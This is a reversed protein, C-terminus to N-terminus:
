RKENWSLAYSVIFEVGDADRAVGLLYNDGIDPAGVAPLDAFGLLVGDRSFVRYRTWEPKAAALDPGTVFVRRARDVLIGSVPPVTPPVVVQAILRETQQPNGHAGARTAEARRAARWREIMVDTTRVTDQSWRIIVRAGDDDVCRVEPADNGTICFREGAAGLTTFRRKANPPIVPEIRGRGVDVFMSEIAGFDGLPRVSAQTTDTWFLATKPRFLQGTPRPPDGQTPRDLQTVTILSGNRFLTSIGERGRAAEIRRQLSDQATMRTDIYGAATSFRLLQNRVGNVAILTDGGAPFLGILEEFEGPGQGRRGHSAIFGGRQDFVRIEMPKRNAVAIKGDDLRMVSTVESFLLHLAGAEAGITLQPAESVTLVPRLAEVQDTNTVIRFGASDSHVVASSPAEESGACANTFAVALLSLSRTLCRISSHTM